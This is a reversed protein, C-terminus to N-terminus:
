GLLEGIQPQGSLIHAKIYQEAAAPTKAEVLHRLLQLHDSHPLTAASDNKFVTNMRYFFSPMVIRRYGECIASNNCTSVLATHFELDKKYNLASVESKARAKEAAAAMAELQPLNQTLYGMHKSIRVATCEVSARLLYNGIVDERSVVKVQTGKRPIAELYGEYELKKLAELVPAASIGLEDAITRRNMLTGPPLSGDMLKNLIIDYANESLM